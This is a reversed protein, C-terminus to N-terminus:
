SVEIEEGYLILIKRHIFLAILYILFTSFSFRVINTLFAIDFYLSLLYATVVMGIFSNLVYNRKKKKGDDDKKLRKKQIDSDLLYRSFV